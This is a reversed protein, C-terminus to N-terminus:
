KSASHHFFSLMLLNWKKGRSDLIINGNFVYRETEREGFKVVSDLLGTNEALIFKVKRNGEQLLDEQHQVFGVWLAKKRVRFGGDLGSQKATYQEFKVHDMQINKPVVLRKIKNGEDAEHYKAGWVNAMFGNKSCFTRFYLFFYQQYIFSSSLKTLLLLYFM